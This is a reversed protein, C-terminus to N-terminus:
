ELNTSGQYLMITPDGDISKSVKVGNKIDELIGEYMVVAEDVKEQTWTYWGDTPNWGRSGIITSLEKKERELWAKYDDYTWWEVKSAPYKAEYETQTLWTLGGDLSIKGEEKDGGSTIIVQTTLSSAIAMSEAQGQDAGQIQNNEVAGGEALEMVTSQIDKKEKTRADFESPTAQRLGSLKGKAYTASLDVEGNVRSFGVGAQKDFFDRVKKGHFTAIGTKDDYILGFREYPTLVKKMEAWQEEENYVPTYAGNGEIANANVGSIQDMQPNAPKEAATAFVTATCIILSTALLAAATSFKKMKMIAVIREEIAHKSFHNGLPNLKSKREEMRILAMAYARKSTQGFSRVVTEDCSLEIDRNALMYMVWVLPNFWHICLVTNLLLKTIADLRRIHVFEHMLVYPLQQDNNWDTSKPMLIVPRFIGFTLPSKIKDSQRIRISRMLRHKSLWRLVFENEVPLSSQFERRCKFYAISFFLAGLAVGTLWVILMPSLTIFPEAESILTGHELTIEPFVMPPPVFQSTDTKGDSIFHDMWSYISFRSSPSYPILLQYIVIGWLVLFTKKPLRHISLARIIVVVAIMLAASLSMHLLDDM